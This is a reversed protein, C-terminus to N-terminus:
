HASIRKGAVRVFTRVIRRMLREIRGGPFPRVDYGLMRVFLNTTFYVIMAVPWLFLWIVAFWLILWYALALEALADITPFITQRWWDIWGISSTMFDIVAVLARYSKRLSEVLDTLPLGALLFFLLTLGGVTIAAGTVGLLLTSFHGLRYKMTAGLYLGAGCSLLTVVLFHVGTMVGVIFLAVCLGIVGVYLSRRLVLVAFAVPILLRFFVDFVPLYVALLQFMVAIDALLAGEAIDIARLTRNM